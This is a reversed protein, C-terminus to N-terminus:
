KECSLEQPNKQRVTNQCSYDCFAILNMNYKSTELIAKGLTKIVLVGEVGLSLQHVRGACMSLCFSVPLCLLFVHGFKFSM